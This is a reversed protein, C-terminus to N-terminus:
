FLTAWISDVPKTKSFWKAKGNSDLCAINALLKGRYFEMMDIEGNAPWPEGIGLTWWAPRMGKSVDIKARIEYRGYQWQQKNKTLICASTYQITKRSKRWDNSGETYNPNPKGERRAEIILKGDKCYANDPQYWQDEKNRVFGREYSWNATDPSGDKNFQDAWVLKYQGKYGQNTLAGQCFAFLSAVLAIILLTTKNLM